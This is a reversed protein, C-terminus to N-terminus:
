GGGKKSEAEARRDAPAEDTVAQVQRPKKELPTLETIEKAGDAGLEAFKRATVLVRSELSGVARNYNDVAKDL